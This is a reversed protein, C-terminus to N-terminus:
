LGEQHQWQNLTLYIMFFSMLVIYLTYMYLTCHTKFFQVGTVHENLELM